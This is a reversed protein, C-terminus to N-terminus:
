IRYRNVFNTVMTLAEERSWGEHCMLYEVACSVPTRDYDISEDDSIPLPETIQAIPETIFASSQSTSNM